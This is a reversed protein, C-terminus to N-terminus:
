SCQLHLQVSYNGFVCLYNFLSFYLVLKSPKQPTFDINITNKNTQIAFLLYIQM